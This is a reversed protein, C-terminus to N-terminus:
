HDIEMPLFSTMKCQHEKDGMIGSNWHERMERITAKVVERFTTLIKLYFPHEGHLNLEDDRSNFFISRNGVEGKGNQSGEGRLIYGEREGVIEERRDIKFLMELVDVEHPDGNQGLCSQPGIVNGIGISFLAHTDDESSYMRGSKGFFGFLMRIGDDDSLCFPNPSTEDFIEPGFIKLKKVALLARDIGRFNWTRSSLDQRGPAVKWDIHDLGCSTTRKTTFKAGHLIEKSVSVTESRDRVDNFLDSIKSV